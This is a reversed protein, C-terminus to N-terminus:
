RVHHDLQHQICASIQCASVNIEQDTHPTAVPTFAFSPAREKELFCREKELSCAILALIRETFVLIYIYIYEEFYIYM